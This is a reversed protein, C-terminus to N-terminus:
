RPMLTRRATLAVAAWFLFRVTMAVATRLEFASGRLVVVAFAVTTIATAIAILGALWVAWARGQWLGIAAVVYFGGALFNFWVVFWIYNGASAQAEAPGFLVNGGSFVTLMGFLFAFIAVLKIWRSSTGAQGAELSHINM